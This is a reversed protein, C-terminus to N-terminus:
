TPDGPSWEATRGAIEGGALRFSRLYRRGRNWFADSEGDLDNPTAISVLYLRSGAVVHLSLVYGEDALIVHERAPYGDVTVRREALLTGRANGLAADRGADLLTDPPAQFKSGYDLSTVWCTVREGEHHATYTVSVASEGIREVRTEPASPMEISFSGDDPQFRDWTGPMAFTMLGVAVVCVVSMVGGNM